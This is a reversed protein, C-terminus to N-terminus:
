VELPHSTCSGQVRSVIRCPPRDRSVSPQIVLQGFVEVLAQNAGGFGGSQDLYQLDEEWRLVRFYGEANGHAICRKRLELTDEGFPGVDLVRQVSHGLPANQEGALLGPLFSLVPQQWRDDPPGLGGVPAALIGRFRPLKRGQPNLIPVLGEPLLQGAPAHRDHANQGDGLRDLIRARHEREVGELGHDFGGGVSGDGFAGAPLDLGVDALATVMRQVVTQMETAHAFVHDFVAHGPLYGGFFRELYEVRGGVLPQHVNHVVDLPVHAGDAVAAAAAAAEDVGSFSHPNM